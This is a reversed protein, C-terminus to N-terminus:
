LVRVGARGSAKVIVDLSSVQKRCRSPVVRAGRRHARRGGVVRREDLEELLQEGVQTVRAVAGAVYGPLHLEILQQRLVRVLLLQGSLGEHQSLEHTAEVVSPHSPDRQDNRRRSWRRTASGM